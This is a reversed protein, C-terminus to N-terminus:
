EPLTRVLKGLLEASEFAGARAPPCASARRRRSSEPRSPADGSLSANEAALEALRITIQQKLGVQDSENMKFIHRM